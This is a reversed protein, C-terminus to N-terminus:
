MVPLVEIKKCVKNQLISTIASLTTSTSSMCSTCNGSYSILVVLSKSIDKVEVGGGDQAVFPAIDKEMVQHIYSLQKEKALLEFGEIQSFEGDNFTLEKPTIFNKPVIQEAKTYFADIVCNIYPALTDIYGKVADDGFSIVAEYGDMHDLIQDASINTSGDNKEALVGLTEFIAIMFTPGSVRYRFKTIKQSEEDYSFDMQYSISLRKVRIVESEMKECFLPNLIRKRMKKSYVDWLSLTDTNYGLM